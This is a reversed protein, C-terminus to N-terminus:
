QLSKLMERLAVTNNVNHFVLTDGSREVRGYLHSNHALAWRVHDNYKINRAKLKAPNLEFRIVDARLDKKVIEIASTQVLETDNADLEDEVISTTEVTRTPSFLPLGLAAEIMSINVTRGSANVDTMFKAGVRVSYRGEFALFEKLGQVGFFLANNSSANFHEGQNILTHFVPGLQYGNAFQYRGAADFLLGNASSKRTESFNQSSLGLGLDFVLPYSETYYSADVKFQKPYGDVASHGGTFGLGAGFFLKFREDETRASEIVEDISLESTSSLSTQAHAFSVLGFVFLVAQLVSKM